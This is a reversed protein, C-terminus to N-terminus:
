LKIDVHMDEKIRVLTDVRKHHNYSVDEMAQVNIKKKKWM